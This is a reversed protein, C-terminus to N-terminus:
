KGKFIGKICYWVGAIVLVTPLLSVLLSVIASGMLAYDASLVGVVFAGFVLVALLAFVRIVAAPIYPQIRVNGNISHNYVSRAILRGRQQKARVTVDDGAAFVNQMNGYLTIDRAQEPYGRAVHEEVRFITVFSTHSLQYPEGSFVAQFFKTFKSQYYQQTNSETVAGNIVVSGGQRQEFVYANNVNRNQGRFVNGTQEEWAPRATNTQRGGQAAGLPELPEGCSPCVDIRDEYIANCEPCRKVM